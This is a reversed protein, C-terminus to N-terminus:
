KLKWSRSFMEDELVYTGPKFSGTCLVIQLAAATENHLKLFEGRTKECRSLIRSIDSPVDKNGYPRKIDIEPAGFYMDDRFNIYM